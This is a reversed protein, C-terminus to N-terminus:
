RRVPLRLFFTKVIPFSTFTLISRTSISALSIRSPSTQNLRLPHRVVVATRTRFIVEELEADPSLWLLYYGCLVLVIGTIGIIINLLAKNM